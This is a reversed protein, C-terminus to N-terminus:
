TVSNNNAILASALAYKASIVMGPTADLVHKAYRFLGVPAEERAGVMLYIRKGRKLNEM